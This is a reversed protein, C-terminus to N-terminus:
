EQVLPGVIINAFKGFSTMKIHELFYSPISKSIKPKKAM